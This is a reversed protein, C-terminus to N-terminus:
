LGFNSNQNQQKRNKNRIDKRRNISKNKTKYKLNGENPNNQLKKFFMHLAKLIPNKKRERINCWNDPKSRLLTYLVNISDQKLKTAKLLVYNDSTELFDKIGIRNLTLYLNMNNPLTGYYCVNRLTRNHTSLVNSLETWGIQTINHNDLGLVRLTQNEKLGQALAHCGSDGIQNQSLYLQKISRNNKITNALNFCENNGINNDSLDLYKLSNMHQIAISLAQCGHIGIGNNGLFLSELSKLQQLARSLVTCGKDGIECFYIDVTQLSSSKRQLLQSVLKCDDISLKENACRFVSDDEFFRSFYFSSRGTM